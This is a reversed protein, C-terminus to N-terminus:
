PAYSLVATDVTGHISFVRHMHMLDFLTSVPRSVAALRFDGQRKRTERLCAILAGLGSSDVFKLASMDMVLKHQTVLIDGMASRFDAANSADLHDTPHQIILVGDGRTQTHLVM